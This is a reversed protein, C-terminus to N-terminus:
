TLGLHMDDAELGVTLTDLRCIKAASVLQPLLGPLPSRRLLASSRSRMTHGGDM